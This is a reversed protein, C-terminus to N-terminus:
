QKVMYREKNMVKLYLEFYKAYQRQEAFKKSWKICNSQMHKKDCQKIKTSLDEINGVEKILFGTGPAVIEEMACINYAVVPTGCALAEVTTMGFTEARSVNVYVEAVNYWEVLQKINDTQPLM